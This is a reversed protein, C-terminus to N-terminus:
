AVLTQAVDDHGQARAIDEATRGRSDRIDPNAGAELLARVVQNLGNYAAFMLPTHGQDDRVDVPIGAGVFLPVLEVKGAEDYLDFDSSPLAGVFHLVTTNRNDVVTANRHSSDGFEILAAATEPAGARAALMMPVTGNRGTSNVEVGRSVLFAIIDRNAGLTAARHMASWGQRDVGTVDVGQENVLYKVLGTCGRMAAVVVPDDGFVDRIEPDVDAEEILYELIERNCDWAAEHAASWGQPGLASANVGDEVLERVRELDQDRAADLLEVVAANRSIEGADINAGAAGDADREAGNEDQGNAQLLLRQTRARSRASPIRIDAASDPLFSGSEPTIPSLLARRLPRLTRYPTAVRNGVRRIRRVLSNLNRRSAGSFTDDHDTFM